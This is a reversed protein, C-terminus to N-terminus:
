ARRRRGPARARAHQETREGGREDRDAVPHRGPPRARLRERALLLQEAHDVLGGLRVHELLVVPLEDVRDEFPALRDHALHHDRAGVHDRDVVVLVHRRAICSNRTTPHRASARRRCPRPRPARCGTGARRRAGSSRSAAPWSSRPARSSARGATKTGSDFFASSVRRCICSSEFWRAITTSSYPPMAPSTVISSRM